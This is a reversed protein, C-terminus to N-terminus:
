YLKGFPGFRRGKKQSLFAMDTILRRRNEKKMKLPTPSPADELGPPIGKPSNGFQPADLIANKILNIDREERKKNLNLAM